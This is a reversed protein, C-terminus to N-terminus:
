LDPEDFWVCGSKRFDVWSDFIATSVFCREVKGHNESKTECHQLRHREKGKIEETKKRESRGKRVLSGVIRYWVTDYGPHIMQSSHGGAQKGSQRKDIM